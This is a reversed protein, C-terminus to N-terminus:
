GHRVEQPAPELRRQDVGLSALVLRAAALDLGTVLQPIQGARLAAPAAHEKGHDGTLEGHARELMRLLRDYTDGAADADLGHRDLDAENLSGIGRLSWRLLRSRSVTGHLRWLRTAAGPAGHGVAEADALLEDRLGRAVAAADDWGALALVAAIDDCRQAPAPGHEADQPPAPQDLVEADSEVIVDGQLACRLVLGAPWYALVPGLRVHLVDMELGDRDEGGGALPIGDPSMDMDEHEGHDMGEHEGHDMGEHGGGDMGEHEGGDLLESAAARTRADARHRESDLLAAYAEDLRAAVDDGAGVGVRVRPGPMAAWVMDVARALRPGPEGCVALVDADVPSVALRWGRALVQREVAARTRWSGPVEVVLVHAHRAAARALARRLGM